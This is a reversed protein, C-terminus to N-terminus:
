KKKSHNNDACPKDSFVKVKKGKECNEKMMQCKNTYTVGDGGCVPKPQQPCYAVCKKSGCTKKARKRKVQKIFTGKRCATLKMECEGPHWLGDSGCIPEYNVPCDEPCRERDCKGIKSIGMKKNNKCYALKLACVSSYTKDDKGCVPAYIDRCGPPCKAMKKCPGKKKFVLLKNKLKMQCRVRKYECMNPFTKDKESTSLTACVPNYNKKCEKPCGVCWKEVLQASKQVNQGNFAQMFDASIFITEASNSLIFLSEIECEENDFFLASFVEEETM